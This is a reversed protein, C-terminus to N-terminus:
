APSKQTAMHTPIAPPWDSFDGIFLRRRRGEFAYDLTFTKRGTEGAQGSAHSRPGYRPVM